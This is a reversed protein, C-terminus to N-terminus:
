LALVNKIASIVSETSIDFLCRFVLGEPTEKGCDGTKDGNCGCQKPEFLIVTHPAYYPLWCPNSRNGLVVAPVGLHCAIHTTGTDVGVYASAGAITKILAGASLDELMHVAFGEAIEKTRVHDIAACTLMLDYAPFAERTATLIERAHTIPVSRRIHAASFHFLFYPRTAHKPTGYLVAELHPLLAVPSLGWAAVIKAPLDFMQDARCDYVISKEYLSITANPKGICHVESSGARLTLTRAIICWWLPLSASLPECLALHHSSFLLRMLVIWSRPREKPMELLCVFPLPQLMDRVFPNERTSLLTLRAGPSTAALMRGLHVGLLADGIAGGFLYMYHDKKM